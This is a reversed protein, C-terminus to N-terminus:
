RAVGAARQGVVPLAGGDQLHRQVAFTPARRDATLFGGCACRVTRMHEPDFDLPVRQPPALPTMSVAAGGGVRVRAPARGAGRLRRPHRRPRAGPQGTVRPAGARDPPRAAPPRPGDMSREALGPEARRALVGREVDSMAGLRQTIDVLPCGIAEAIHAKNKGAAKALAVLQHATLGEVPAPAERFQGEVMAAETRAPATSTLGALDADSIPPPETRDRSQRTAPTAPAAAPEVPEIVIVAM